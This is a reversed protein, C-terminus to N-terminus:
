ANRAIVKEAQLMTEDFCAKLNELASPVISNGKVQTEVEVSQRYLELLSLNAAIGKVTHVALKAKEWEGGNIFAALDDINIDTKLRSLLTAYLKGNNMVRKKGDEENIYIVEAMDVGRALDIGM